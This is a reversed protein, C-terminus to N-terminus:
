EEIEDFNESRGNGAAAGRPADDATSTTITEVFVNMPISRTEGNMKVVIEDSRIARLVVNQGNVSFTDGVRKVLSQRNTPDNVRLIAVADGQSEQFGPKGIVGIYQIFDLPGPEIEGPGLTMDGSTVLPQLPDHRGEVLSDVPLAQAIEELLADDGMGLMAFTEDVTKEQALWGLEDIDADMERILDQITEPKGALERGDALRSQGRGIERVANDGNILSGVQIAIGTTLAATVLLTGALAARARKDGKRANDVIWLALAGARTLFMKPM